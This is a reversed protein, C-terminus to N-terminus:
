IVHRLDVPHDVQVVIVHATDERIFHAEALGDLHYHSCHYHSYCTHGMLRIFHAEALGDLHYHSCHYHSSCTHGMLRIFHAEALGDLITVIVATVIVAIITVLMHSGNHPDLCSWGQM